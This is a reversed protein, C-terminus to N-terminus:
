NKAFQYVGNNDSIVSITVPVTTLQVNSVPQNTEKNLVTGSITQADKKELVADATAVTDVVTVRNSYPKYGSKNVTIEYSGAVIDGFLFKGASDTAASHSEPGSIAVNAGSIAQGDEGLVKGEIGLETKDSCGFFIIGVAVILSTLLLYPSHNTQDKQRTSRIRNQRLSGAPNSLSFIPIQMLDRM